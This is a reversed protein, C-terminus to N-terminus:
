SYRQPLLNERLTISNIFRTAANFQLKNINLLISRILLVSLSIIIVIIVLNVENVKQILVLM